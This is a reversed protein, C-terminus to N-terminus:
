WGFFSSYDRISLSNIRNKILDPLDFDLNNAFKELDTMLDAVDGHVPPVFVADNITAGGIWNQSTRFLGPSKHKGRVGQLLVKHTERILRSSFPIRHLQEVAVNMAEIYNQVEQWDDRKEIGVDDKELFAEEM